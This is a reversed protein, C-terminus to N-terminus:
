SSTSQPEPEQIHDDLSHCAFRQTDGNSRQMHYISITEDQVTVEESTTQVAFCIDACHSPPIARGPQPFNIIGPQQRGAGTRLTEVETILEDIRRTLGELQCQLADDGAIPATNVPATFRDDTPELGVAHLFRCAYDQLELGPGTDKESLLRVLLQDIDQAGASDGVVGLLPIEQGLYFGTVEKFRTYIDEGVKHNDSKNVLLYVHTASRGDQLQRVLRYSDSLVAPEPTVVLITESGALALANEGSENGPSSDILICDYGDLQSLIAAMERLQSDSLAALGGHEPNGPVLDFGQCDRVLVDDLTAVSLLLENLTNGPDLGLLQAASTHGGDIDLLCVRQGHRALRAALSVAISTKGVGGTAGTVTIIRTM